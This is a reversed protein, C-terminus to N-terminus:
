ELLIGALAAAILNAAAGLLMAKLGFRAMEQRRAPALGGIGGLQIAISGFNAFGCLAYTAITRARESLEMREMAEYAFFENVAIKIGFLQGVSGAEAAPVGVLYALPLFVWGLLRGLTLNETGLWGGALGLLADVMELAAVFALLMAGVNLALYLGTSAGAAAADFINITERGGSLKVSGLTAPAEKEPLLIKTLYLAAPASLISAALMQDFEVRFLERYVVMMSGSITAFGGAMVAMLESSTMGAVYPRIVLPAETMGLFVNASGSLAEAGSVRMTRAMLWAMAQVILPLIRLHFLVSMLASAFVLTPLVKLMLIAGVRAIGVREKQPGEVDIEGKALPGFLREAGRDAFSMVWQVGGALGQFGDKIGPTKLVLVAFVVQISLGWVVQRWRVARRDASFCYVLGILLAIGILGIGRAFM